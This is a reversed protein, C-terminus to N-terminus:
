GRVVEHEGAIRTGVRRTGSLKADAEALLVRGERTLEYLRRRPRGAARAEDDPEWRSAILGRREMRRLAPYVTGSPQETVEMLDFGYRHGAALAEFLLATAHTMRISAM